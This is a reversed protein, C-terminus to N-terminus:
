SSSLAKSLSNGQHMKKGRDKLFGVTTRMPYFQHQEAPIVPPAASTVYNTTWSPM